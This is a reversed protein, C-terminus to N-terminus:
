KEPCEDEQNLFQLLLAPILLSASPACSLGSVGPTPLTEALFSSIVGSSMLQWLRLKFLHTVRSWAGTINPPILM